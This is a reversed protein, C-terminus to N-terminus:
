ALHGLQVVAPSQHDRTLPFDVYASGYFGDDLHAAIIRSPKHTPGPMQSVTMQRNLEDAGRPQADGSIRHNGVHQRSQAGLRQEALRRKRGFAAGVAATGGVAVIVAVAVVVAM